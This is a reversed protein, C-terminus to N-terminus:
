DIYHAFFLSVVVGSIMILLTVVYLITVIGGSFHKKTGGTIPIFDMSYIMNVTDQYVCMRMLIIFIFIVSFALGFVM